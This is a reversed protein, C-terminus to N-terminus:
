FSYKDIKKNTLHFM